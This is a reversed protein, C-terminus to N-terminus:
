KVSRVDKWVLKKGTATRRLDKCKGDGKGTIGGDPHCIVECNLNYLPNFHDCCPAPVLYVLSGQYSYEWIALAPLQAPLELLQAKLTELCSNSEASESKEENCTSALSSIVAFVVISLKIM